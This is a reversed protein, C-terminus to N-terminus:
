PRLGTQVTAFELDAEAKESCYGESGPAEDLSTFLQAEPTAYDLVIKVCDVTKGAFSFEPGGTTNDATGAQTGDIILTDSNLGEYTRVFSLEREGEIVLTGETRLRADDNYGSSSFRVPNFQTALTASPRTSGAPFSGAPTWTLIRTVRNSSDPTYVWKVIPYQWQYDQAPKGEMWATQDTFRVQVQNTRNNYEGAKGQDIRREIYQRGEQFNRVDGEGIVRRMLDLANRVSSLAPPTEDTYTLGAFQTLQARLSDAVTRAEGANPAYPDPEVGQIVDAFLTNGTQESLDFSSFTLDVNTAPNFASSSGGGSEIRCGSLTLITLSVAVFFCSHRM